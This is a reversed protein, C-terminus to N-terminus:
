KILMSEVGKSADLAIHDYERIGDPTSPSIIIYDSGTELRDIRVFQYYGKNVNYVGDLSNM